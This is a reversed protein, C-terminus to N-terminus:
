KCYEKRFRSPVSELAAIAADRSEWRRNFPVDEAVPTDYIAKKEAAYSEFANAVASLLAVEDPTCSTVGRRGYQYGLIRDLTEMAACGAAEVKKRADAEVQQERMKQVEPADAAYVDGGERYGSVFENGNSRRFDRDALDGESRTCLKTKLVRTVTGDVFSYGSHRGHSVIVVADGVVLKEAHYNM